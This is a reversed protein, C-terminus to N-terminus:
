NKKPSRAKSLDRAEPRWVLATYYNMFGPMKKSTRQVTFSALFVIHTKQTEVMPSKIKVLKFQLKYRGQGM